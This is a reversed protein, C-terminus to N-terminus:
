EPQRPKATSAPTNKPTQDIQKREKELLQLLKSMPDQEGTQKGKTATPDRKAM